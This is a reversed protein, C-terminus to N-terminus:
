EFSTTEMRQTLAGGRRVKSGFKKALIRDLEAVRAGDGVLQELAAREGDANYKAVV